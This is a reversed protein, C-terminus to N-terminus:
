GKKKALAWVVLPFDKENELSHRKPNYPMWENFNAVVCDRNGWSDVEVLDPDFGCEELFHKLGTTSWRSCDVPDNHIRILFPVSILFYGGDKLMAYVNQGAKYPWVLHEFVQEAIILDYQQPLREKCVDFGPFFVSTYKRFGLDKWKNGSIELTDFSDYKLAKVLKGTADDMVVRCWHEGGSKYGILRQYLNVLFRNQKLKEKIM